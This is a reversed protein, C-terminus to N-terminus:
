AHAVFGRRQERWARPTQGFNRSFLRSFDAHAGFGCSPAIQCLPRDTTLMMICALNLRRLEIFGRVSVGFSQKFAKSFTSNTLCALAALDALRIPADIHASVYAAVRRVQWSALVQRQKGLNFEACHHEARSRESELLASARDLHARAACADRDVLRSTEQLLRLLIGANDADLAKPSPAEWSREEFM